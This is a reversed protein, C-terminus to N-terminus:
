FYGSFCPEADVSTNVKSRYWIKYELMKKCLQCFLDNMKYHFLELFNNGEIVWTTGEYCFRVEFVNIYGLYNM